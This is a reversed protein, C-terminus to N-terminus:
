KEKKGKSLCDPIKEADYLINVQEIMEDGALDCYKSCLDMYVGDDNKLVGTDFSTVSPDYFWVKFDEPAAFEFHQADELALQLRFNGQKRSQNKGDERMKGQEKIHSVTKRSQKKM